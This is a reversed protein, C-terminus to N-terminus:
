DDTPADITDNNFEPYLDIDWHFCGELYDALAALAEAKETQGTEVYHALREITTANPDM